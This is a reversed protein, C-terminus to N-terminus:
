IIQTEDAIYLIFFKYVDKGKLVAESLFPTDPNDEQWDERFDGLYEEEPGFATGYCTCCDIQYVEDNAYCPIYSISISDLIPEGYVTETSEYRIHHILLSQMALWENVEDLLQQERIFSPKGKATFKEIRFDFKIKKTTSNQEAGCYNCFSSGQTIEKKCLSCNM